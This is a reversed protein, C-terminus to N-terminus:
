SYKHLRYERKLCTPIKIDGTRITRWDRSRIMRVKQYLTNVRNLFDGSLDWSLLSPVFGPFLDIIKTYCKIADNIRGIVQYCLGLYFLNNRKLRPANIYTSAQEYYKVARRYEQRIRYLEGTYFLYSPYNDKERALGKTIYRHALNLRKLYLCEEIIDMLLNRYSVGVRFHRAGTIFVFVSPINLEKDTTNLFYINMGKDRCRQAIREIELGINKDALEPIDKLSIVGDSNFMGNLPGTREMDGEAQVNEVMAKLLAENSNPAVGITVVGYNKYIQRIVAIAPLGMIFSLDKILINQRFSNIKDIVRRLFPLRISNLDIKKGKIKNFRLLTLYHRELVECIGALLAEELSNGAAMGNSGTITYCMLGAPLYILRNELDYARYWRIGVNEVEENKLIKYYNENFSFSFLDGLQFSNHRLESFSATFEQNYHLYKFCSYREVLEMAAGVLAQVKTFGKGSAGPCQTIKQFYPSGHFNFLHIGVRDLFEIRARLIPVGVKKLKNNIIRYTESPSIIRSSNIRKFQVMCNYVKAM